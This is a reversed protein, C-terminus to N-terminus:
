LRRSLVRNKLVDLKYPSGRGFRNWEELETGRGVAAGYRGLVERVAGVGGPGGAYGRGGRGAGARRRVGWPGGRWGARREERRRCRPLGWRGVGGGGAPLPFIFRLRRRAEHIRTLVRRTSGSRLLSPRAGSPSATHGPRAAAGGAARGRTGAMPQGARRQARCPGCHTTAARLASIDTGYPLRIRYRNGARSSCPSHPSGPPEEPPFPARSTSEDQAAPGASPFSRLWASSARKAEPAFLVESCRPTTFGHRQGARSPVKRARSKPVSRSSPCSACRHANGSPGVQRVM